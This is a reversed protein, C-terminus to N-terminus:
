PSRIQDRTNRKYGTAGSWTIILPINVLIRFKWSELDWWGGLHIDQSLIEWMTRKWLGLAFHVCTTCLPTEWTASTTLLKDVLALSMLSKPKIGPGHLNEPPPWPLKSWYEQRSFGKSSGPLRFDMPDCLILCSQLLKTYCACLVIYFFCFGRFHSHYVSNM